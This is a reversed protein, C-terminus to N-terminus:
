NKTNLVENILEIINDKNYDPVFLINFNNILCLQEKLSDRRVIEELGISGDVRNLWFSEDYHSPGNYEVILNNKPFFADVSFPAGTKDNRLWNFTIETHFQPEEIIKAIKHFCKMAEGTDSWLSKQGVHFVNARLCAEGFTGYRNIFSALPITSNESLLTPNVYGYKKQISLLESLFDENSLNRTKGIPEQPLNLSSMMKGFSGFIRDVVPQAYGEARYINATLKGHKEFLEYAKKSADEKSVKKHVLPKEGISVKFENWEGFFKYINNRTYQGNQLYEKRGLREKGLIQKVKNYDNIIDDKTYNQNKIVPM